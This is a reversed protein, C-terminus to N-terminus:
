SKEGVWLHMKDEPFTPTLDHRYDVPKIRRAREREPRILGTSGGTHGDARRATGSTM